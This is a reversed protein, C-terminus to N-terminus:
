AAQGGAATDDVRKRVLSTILALLADEGFPKALHADFGSRM